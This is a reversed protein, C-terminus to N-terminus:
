SARLGEIAKQLRGLFEPRTEGGGLRTPAGFRVSCLLPVPLFSGKPMVRYCNEMWVPVLEIDPRHKALHFIGSKFPQLEEGSGRTGEPFLILSDGGDLADLMPQLPNVGSVRGQREVSVGNFVRRILFQRFNGQFWYDAAAVPRTRRRLKFPLASWLLIFDLHSSHNAFYI